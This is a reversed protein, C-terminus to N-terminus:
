VGDSIIVDTGEPPTFTFLSSEMEENLKPERLLITTQQGLMDKLMLETMVGNTFFIRIRQFNSQDDKPLLEFLQEGEQNIPLRIEFREALQAVDGNLILAAGNSQADDVPKRTAQELDPDYIWLYESDSVILQSYPELTEWRFKGPRAVQVTGKFVEATRSQDTRTVQEFEASYNKYGNLVNSLSDAATEAMSITSVASIALVACAKTFRAKLTHTFDSKM